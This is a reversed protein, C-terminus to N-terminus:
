KGQEEEDLYDAYFCRACNGCIRIGDNQMRALETRLMRSETKLYEKGGRCSLQGDNTKISCCTERDTAVWGRSGDDYIVVTAPLVHVNKPEKRELQDPDILVYGFGRKVEIKEKGM